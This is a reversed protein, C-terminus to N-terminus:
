QTVEEASPHRWIDLRGYETHEFPAEFQCGLRQALAISRANDPAVCSIVSSWGLTEYAYARAATAAEFAIGRGEGEAFLSWAIECEPWGEPHFLGTTGLAADTETDAIIWRGYGRLPWQGLLACFQHWAESRSNPGGVFSARDSARFTAYADFDRLAPARLTLRKTHLTPIM